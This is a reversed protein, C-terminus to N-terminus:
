HREQAFTDQAYFSHLSHIFPSWKLSYPKTYGCTIRTCPFFYFELTCTPFLNFFQQIQPVLCPAHAKDHSALTLRHPFTTVLETTLPPWHNSFDCWWLQAKADNGLLWFISVWFSSYIFLFLWAKNCKEMMTWEWFIIVRFLLYIFWFPWTQISM